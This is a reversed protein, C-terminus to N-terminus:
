VILSMPSFHRASQALHHFTESEPQLNCIHSSHAQRTLAHGDYVHGVDVVVDRLEARGRHTEASGRRRARQGNEM